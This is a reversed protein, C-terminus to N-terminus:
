GSARDISSFLYAWKEQEYEKHEKNQNQKVIHWIGIVDEALIDGKQATLGNSLKFNYVIKQEKNIGNFFVVCEKECSVVCELNMIRTIDDGIIVSEKFKLLQGDIERNDGDINKFRIEYGDKNRIKGHAYSNVLTYGKGLAKAAEKISEYEGIFEKNKYVLVPKHGYLRQIKRMSDPTNSYHWNYMSTCWELNELNNNTKIEDKHNVQPLEDPNPLFTIAILRHVAYSKLDNSRKPPRSLNVYFYGDKGLRPKMIVEKRGCKSLSKIRGFTSAQYLGEYQPIDKWIEIRETVWSVFYPEFDATKTAAVTENEGKYVVFLVM